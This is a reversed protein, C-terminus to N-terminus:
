QRCTILTALMAPSEVIGDGDGSGADDPTLAADCEGIVRGRHRWCVAVTVTLPDGGSSSVVIRENAAPNPQISKGGGGNASTDALWADWSAFGSASVNPILCGGGTNQRRVQEMVRSVDNMAWAEHRAYENTTLQGLFARLLATIGVALIVACVLLEVLTLGTPRAPPAEQRRRM